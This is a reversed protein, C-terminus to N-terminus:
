PLPDEAEVAERQQERNEHLDPPSSHAMQRNEHDNAEVSRVSRQPCLSLNVRNHISTRVRNKVTGSDRERPKTIMVM